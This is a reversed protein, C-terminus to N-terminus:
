CIWGQNNLPMCQGAPYTTGDVWTLKDMVDLKGGIWYDHHFESRVLNSICYQATSNPITALNGNRLRCFTGADSHNRLLDFSEYCINLKDICQRDGKSM